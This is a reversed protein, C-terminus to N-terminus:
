LASAAIVESVLAGATSDICIEYALSM